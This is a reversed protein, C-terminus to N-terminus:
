KNQKQQLDRLARRYFSLPHKVRCGADPCFGYDRVKDCSPPSYKQSIIRDIQYGAIKEDYNPSKMFAETIQPKPMGISNLFAALFFRAMHPLSEGDIQKQYMSAMCQPFANPNLKGEFKFNFDRQQEKNLEGSLNKALEKFSSPLSKTEVPLSSLVRVFVTEALFRCFLNINLRVRGSELYQNVLKLAPDKFQIALFHPLSLSVFFGNQELVEAEVGLDKALDLSLQKKDADKELYFFTSRAITSAFSKHMGEGMFSVLIKAIPFAAIEQELLDTSNISLTYEKGKFARGIMITARNMTEESVDNLSLGQDKLIRKAQSSFPFRQAFRLQELTPM